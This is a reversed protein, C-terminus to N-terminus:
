LLVKEFFIRLYFKPISGQVALDTLGLAVWKLKISCINVRDKLWALSPNELIRVNKQLVLKGSAM